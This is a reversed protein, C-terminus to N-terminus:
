KKFQELFFNFDDDFKVNKESDIKVEKVKKEKLRKKDENSIEGSTFYKKLSELQSNEALPSQNIKKSDLKNEIIEDEQYNTTIKTPTQSITNDEYFEGTLPNYKLNNDKFEAYYNSFNEEKEIKHFKITEKIEKIDIENTTQAFGILTLFEDCNHSKVSYIRAYKLLEIDNSVLILEYINRENKITSKIVQDASYLTGSQEVYVNEQESFVNKIVGDFIIYFNYKIYKQAYTYILKVVNQRAKDISQKAIFKSESHSHLLNNGDILYKRM